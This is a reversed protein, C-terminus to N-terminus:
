EQGNNPKKPPERPRGVAWAAVGKQEGAAVLWGARKKQKGM